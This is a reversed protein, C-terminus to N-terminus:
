VELAKSRRRRRAHVAFRSPSLYGQLLSLLLENSAENRVVLVLVIM